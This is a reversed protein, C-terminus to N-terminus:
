EELISASDSSIPQLVEIHSEMLKSLCVGTEDSCAYNQSRLYANVRGELDDYHTQHDLIAKNLAEIEQSFQQEVTQISVMQSKLSRNEVFFYATIGFLIVLVIIAFLFHVKFSKEQKIIHTEIQAIQETDSQFDM